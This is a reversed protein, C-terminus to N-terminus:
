EGEYFEDYDKGLYARKVEVDALLDSSRGQLVMKGTELVYGRDSIKLAAQANQEVLLITLGQEKLNVLTELIKEVLLPALGMSPEDLVLLRPRAMLARGIALMQQEGGSLTGAAQRSREKLIPFLEMIMSLDQEIRDHRKKRYMTYAGLKLNDMVSLPGFILRGEPVLCIGRNVIAPPDLGKIQEEEFLIEGEWGPLLGCIAQLLTSKGSGNAGIITILEGQRVSLSVGKIAMIRGYYCKLNRVKLM